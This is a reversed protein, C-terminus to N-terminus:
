KSKSPYIRPDSNYRELLRWDRPVFLEQWTKHIGDDKMKYYNSNTAEQIYLYYWANVNMNDRWTLMDPLLDSPYQPLRKLARNILAAVEARTVFQSPRFTGDSYGQIWGLRHAAYINNEAWHGATDTFVSSGNVHGYGMIRVVLTAFEARTMPQNPRFTGDAYGQIHGANYMTSIANNFWRDNNVDAFPNNQSWNQIRYEDSILRFFITVIEARTINNNPRVLGDPYGIIYAHHMPSMEAPDVPEIPSDIDEPIAAPPRPDPLPPLLSSAAQWTAIVVVDGAPMVFTTIANNPNAFIVGDSTIWGAFVYGPRSGANITVTNGSFYTGEGTIAAYSNKVIVTYKGGAAHGTIVSLTTYLITAILLVFLAQELWLRRKNKVMHPKQNTKM